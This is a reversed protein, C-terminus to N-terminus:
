VDIFLDLMLMGEFFRVTPMEGSIVEQIRAATVHTEAGARVHEFHAELLRKGAQMLEQDHKTQESGNSSPVSVTSAIM